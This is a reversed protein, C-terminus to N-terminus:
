GLIQSLSLYLSPFLFKKEELFKEGMLYILQYNNSKWQISSNVFFFNEFPFNGCLSEINFINPM